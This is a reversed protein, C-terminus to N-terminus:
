NKKQLHTAVTGTIYSFIFPLSYEGAIFLSQIVEVEHSSIRNILDQLLFKDGCKGAALFATKRVGAHEDNMLQLIMDVQLCNDRSSFIESAMLRERYDISSVMQKLVLAAIQKSQASGYFLLGGLAAQRIVPEKHDILPLILDNDVGNSCMINISESVIMPSNQEQLFPLLIETASPFSNHSILKLAATKVKESSHHLVSIVLDDSMGTGNKYLMNLINIVETESGTKAKEKLWALTGSDSVSFSEKDFYRSSITKIITKLYQSNIRYIGIIWFVGIALLLYSLTLLDVKREPHYQIFLLLILGTILSAFPDMIGKVITHARLREHNSLPQMITLFVPSNISTRLVDVVISAAGFLYIILNQSHLNQTLIIVTIFVLMVVPTILLSKIIGLKNVLRGTFITKVFIAIIRTVALFLAIFKALSVDDHFAEKVGAYFAFNTILFAGTIIISLLSLRRILTNGSFNKVIKSVKQSTHKVPHKHKHQVELLKGSKKISM